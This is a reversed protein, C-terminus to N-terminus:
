ANYRKMEFAKELEEIEFRGIPVVEGITKSAIVSKASFEAVEL